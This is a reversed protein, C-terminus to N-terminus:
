GGAYRFSAWAAPSRLAPNGSRLLELQATRLAAAADGTERYAEHFAEMLVRTHRDDVRWLSGVVGGAGASLLAGSLGAFGGSRGSRGRSTQCASLVVIRLRRLDMGAIEAATLRAGGGARSSAAVLYSREPRADDFVAHGAFHAIGGRQLAARVAAVDADRREIVRAGGYLRAVAAAEAAAGALPELEPFARRDFAPDSVLTVPVNRPLRAPGSADRLSSAFRVPHDEVLYRGRERNRLAAMPVTSLEGDAVIVLPTGSPGLRAGLPRILRDYLAELAGAVAPEPSRRELAARVKEVDDLLAARSVVSRTLHLSGRGLTWALLTDGVLAFEVAVHGPAVQLPRLTWDPAHGVPSFSARSQEVYDLAQAERGANVALMAARDFVRRSVELLSARLEATTMHTRQRDLVMTARRLDLAAADPRQLALNAEARAFLAPVLRAPVDRGTFYDVVSDLEAVAQGPHAAVAAEARTQRLDALISERAFVAKIEALSATAARVDGDVDGRGLAVRLRARALRAEARHQPSMQEATSVAEDQVQVAARLLGDAVTSNALAYLLNYLSLSGPYDRLMALARHLSAYGGEADGLQVEAYGLQTLAGGAYEREGARELLPFARRLAALGEEYRGLSLLVGGLTWWRRGALSPYRPGDTRAALESLMQRAEESRTRYHLCIGVYTQAWERLVAPGGSEVVREFRPCAAGHDFDVYAARAEAFERHAAANRRTAAGDGLERRIEAVADALSADGRREVLGAALAEAQELRTRARASDGALTARGWAGMLDDWGLDRAERPAAAAYTRMSAPPATRPPAPPLAPRASLAQIRRRAEHSWPSTSDVELYGSWAESAEGRLGIRDLAEATNFRAALHGPEAELARRAAELAQILHRAGQGRDALMLHAAALDALVPAPREALRTASELYSISRHLLNGRADPFLMMSVAAAHLAAPDASTQAAHVAQRSIRLARRSPPRADGACGASEGASPPLAEVLCPRFGSAISLRVGPVEQARVERWLRRWPTRDRRSWSGAGILAGLLIVVAVRAANRRHLSPM